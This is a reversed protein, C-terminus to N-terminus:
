RHIQTMAACTSVGSWEDDCRHADSTYEVNSSAKSAVLSIFPCTRAQTAKTSAIVFGLLFVPPLLLQVASQQANADDVRGLFLLGAFLGM